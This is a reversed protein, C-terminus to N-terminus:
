RIEMLKPWDGSFGGARTFAMHGFIQGREFSGSRIGRSIEQRLLSFENQRLALLPPPPSSSAYCGRPFAYPRGNRWIEEGDLCDIVGLDMARNLSMTKESKIEKAFVSTPRGTRKAYLEVIRRDASQLVRAYALHREATWRARDRPAADTAHFVLRTGPTAQRFDCAMLILTAASSCDHDAIVTKHGQHRDLAAVIREAVLLSGGPSSITVEVYPASRNSILAAEIPILSIGKERSGDKVIPGRLNIRLTEGDRRHVRPMSRALAHIARDRNPTGNRKM